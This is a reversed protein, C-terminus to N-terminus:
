YGPARRDIPGPDAELRIIGTEIQGNAHLELWRFGPAQEDLGFREAGPLFQVCTSPCGYLRVGNREASIAQHVHGWLVGRVQPHRDLVAFFDEINILAMADMFRSGVPVPQHHLCVLTPREPAQCLCADLGKLEHQSLVGSDEGPLTSDLLVLRWPGLSACRGTHVSPGSLHARLTTPDDHNGPLCYAPVGLDSLQEGLRRYADPSMDHVLDGTLLLADLPWFTERVRALVAELSAQTNLGMLQGAPDQYLHADSLQALRLPTSTM